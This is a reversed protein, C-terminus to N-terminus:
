LLQKLHLSPEYPILPQDTRLRQVLDPNALLPKGFAALDIVGAHIADSASSPTLGGVGILAGRWRKRVLEHLTLGGAVPKLFSNTSPHIVGLGAERFVTLYADLEAEPEQWRYGPQDDKLESFRIIVRDMGVVEGVASLVEKMLRLRGERDKGYSDTRINTVPSAFQDIIYGHAGHIEVGDFGAEMAHKAAQKYQRVLERIEDITMAEPMAFPKRLKHVLGEAQLASPAQPAMGGLLDPHTLRGVHWLQAVITGGEEHVAETVKRWSDAQEKTYLGPVGFTGKGRPSPTIGETILLGVGDKARRRYYAVVEEGVTGTLDNAFGRTMPAMAIRTRLKWPGIDVAQLLEQNEM